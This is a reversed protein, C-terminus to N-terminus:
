GFSGVAEDRTAFVGLHNIFGTLELLESVRESPTALRVDGNSQKARDVASMIERLGASTIYDVDSLDLVINHKNKQWAALLHEGLTIATISDIRGNIDVVLVNQVDILNIDITM